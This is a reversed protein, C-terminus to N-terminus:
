NVMAYIENVAIQRSKSWTENSFADRSFVDDCTFVVVRGVDHITGILEEEVENVPDTFRHIRTGEALDVKIAKVHKNIETKTIRAM